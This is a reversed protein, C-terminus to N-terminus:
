RVGKRLDSIKELLSYTGIKGAFAHAEIWEVLTDMLTERYADYNFADSGGDDYYNLPELPDDYTTLPPAM